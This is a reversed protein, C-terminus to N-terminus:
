RWMFCDEKRRPKKRLLEKKLEEAEEPTIGEKTIKQHPFLGDELGAIFVADFELGKSAHVTMLRVANRDEKLEDQDSNLAADSLFNEIGILPEIHDYRGAFTV